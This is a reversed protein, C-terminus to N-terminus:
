CKLGKQMRASQLASECATLSYASPRAAIVVGGDVCDLLYHTNFRLPRALFTMSGSPQLPVCCDGGV